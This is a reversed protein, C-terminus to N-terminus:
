ISIIDMFVYLICCSKYYLLIELFVCFLISGTLLIFYVYKSKKLVKQYLYSTHLNIVVFLTLLILLDKIIGYETSPILISVSLFSLCAVIWLVIKFSLFNETNLRFFKKAIKM